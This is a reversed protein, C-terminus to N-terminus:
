KQDSGSMDGWSRSGAPNEEGPWLVWYPPRAAQCTNDCQSPDLSNLPIAFEKEQKPVIQSM